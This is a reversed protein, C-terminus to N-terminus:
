KSVELVQKALIKLLILLSISPDAERLTSMRLFSQLIFQWDYSIFVIALIYQLRWEETYDFSLSCWIKISAEPWDIGDYSSQLISKCDYSTRNCSYTAITTCQVSSSRWCSTSTWWRGLMRYSHWVINTASCQTALMVMAITDLILAQNKVRMTYLSIAFSTLISVVDSM